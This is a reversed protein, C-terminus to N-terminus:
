AVCPAVPTTLGHESLTAALESEFRGLVDPWQATLAVRRAHDRLGSLHRHQWALSCTAAVFSREDGTPVLLGNDCDNVHEASGASDFAVVPLGSALAELTVNGFAPSLSPHLFLDASAYHRALAEGRQVGVFRAAPFEAELKRRLPGEGVVVMQAHPLRLRVAEFAALALAVNKEVALRGVYLLVPSRACDWEARLAECRKAPSFRQTDVGRGLVVLREFGAFVLEDHLAQTPVFTRRTHNHFRRLLDLVLPSFWGFGHQRSYAHVNSHFHSTAPIGLAQAARLASWGLPGQTAVHVLAPRTREFRHRLTTGSVLGMRLEPHMPIPCGLTRLETDDGCGAEGPQRPRILEVRHGRERLHEVNRAVTLAVGNLDAPCTETVYAIHVVRKRHPEIRGDPLRCERAAAGM